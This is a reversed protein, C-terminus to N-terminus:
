TKKLAKWFSNNPSEQTEIEMEEETYVCLKGYNNQKRTFSPNFWDAVIPLKAMLMHKKKTQNGPSVYLITPVFQKYMLTLM